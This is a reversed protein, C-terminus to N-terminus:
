KGDVLLESRWMVRELELRLAKGAMEKPIEISRSYRAPGIYSNRRTLRLLQPKTLAPQLTDPEGIGALDTTGHLTIQHTGTTLEM